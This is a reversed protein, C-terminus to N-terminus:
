ASLEYAYAAALKSYEFTHNWSFGAVSVTDGSTHIKPNINSFLGEFPMVSPYGLQNWSAHDSCAYGCPENIVWPLSTYEDVLSGVYATLNADVYDPMFAVVPATGPKVYATMDLQLMGKVQVGDNKYKTAIAQSGRLGGEEAAYWHFELPTNPKYGAKTLVRFAELLNVSGSGDDDAGPARGSTASAGNISDMHAGLITVPGATRGPIKAVISSQVWTHNFLAVSAGNSPSPVSAVTDRIWVSAQQGTTARYYRNNFTTLRTLYSQMTTLSVTALIPNVEAQHSPPPYVAAVSVAEEALSALRANDEPNYVETIDFFHVDNAILEDTEADSKWIPEAGDALRLLHFGLASKEKVEAVTIPGGYCSLISSALVLACASFKM